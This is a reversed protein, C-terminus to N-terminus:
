VRRATTQEAPTEREGPGCRNVLWSMLVLYRRVESTAILGLALGAGLIMPTWTFLDIVVLEILAECIKLFGASWNVVPTKLNLGHFIAGLGAIQLGIAVQALRDTEVYDFIAHFNRWFVFWSAILVLWPTFLLLFPATHITHNRLLFLSGVACIVTSTLGWTWWVGSEIDRKDM